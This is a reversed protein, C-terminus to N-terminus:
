ERITRSTLLQFHILLAMKIKPARFLNWKRDKGAEPSQSGAERPGHNGGGDEFCTVGVGAEM